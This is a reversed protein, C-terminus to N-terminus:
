LLALHELPSVDLLAEVGGGRDAVVLERAVRAGAHPGLGERVPRGLRADAPEALAELRAADVGAVGERRVPELCASAGPSARRPALSGGQAAGSGAIGRGEQARTEGHVSAM